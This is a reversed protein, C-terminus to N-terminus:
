FSSGSEWNQKLPSLQQGTYMSYMRYPRHIGNRKAGSLGPITLQRKKKETYKGGGIQWKWLKM